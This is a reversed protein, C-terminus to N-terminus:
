FARGRGKIIGKVPFVRHPRFPAIPTPLSCSRPRTLSVAIVKGIVGSPNLIPPTSASSQQSGKDIIVTKFVHTIDQSLVSAPILSFDHFKGKFDLMARLRENENELEQLRMTRVRLENLEKQLTENEYSTNVLFVYHNWICAIFSFPARVVREFIGYGERISSIGSILFQVTPQSCFM